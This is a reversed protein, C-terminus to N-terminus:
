EKLAALRYEFKLKRYKLSKKITPITITFVLYTYSCIGIVSPWIIGVSSIIILLLLAVAYVIACFWEIKSPKKLEMKWQLIERNNLPRTSNGRTSNIFIKSASIQSASIQGVSIKNM